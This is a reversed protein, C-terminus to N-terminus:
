LAPCLWPLRQGLQVDNKCVMADSIQREYSGTRIFWIAGYVSWLTTFM